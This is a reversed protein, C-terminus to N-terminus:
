LKFELSVNTGQPGTQIDFRAALQKVGILGRGLGTKSRYRGSLVETLNPIGTGTDAAVVKLRPPAGGLALEIYGGPTYSVINRALESVATLMTQTSFTKADVTRCMERVVMLVEAIDREHLVAIRRMKPTAAVATAAGQMKQIAQKFVEFESASVFLRVSPEIRSLLRPLHAPGLKDPTLQFESLARSLTGKANIPSLYKQLLQTLAEHTDSGM